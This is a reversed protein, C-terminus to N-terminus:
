ISPSYSNTKKQLFVEGTHHILFELTDRKFLKPMVIFIREFAYSIKKPIQPKESIIIIHPFPPLLLALTIGPIEVERSIDSIQAKKTNSKIYIIETRQNSPRSQMRNTKKM